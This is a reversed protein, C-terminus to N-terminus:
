LTWLLALGVRLPAINTMWGEQIRSYVLVEHAAPIRRVLHPMWLWMFFWKETTHRGHPIKHEGVRVSCLQHDSDDSNELMSVRRPDVGLLAEIIRAVPVGHRARLLVRRRLAPSAVLHDCWSACM